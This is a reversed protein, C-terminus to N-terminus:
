LSTNTKSLLKPNFHYNLNVGFGFASGERYEKYNPATSPAWNDKVTVKSWIMPTSISLSNQGFSILPIFAMGVFCGTVIIKKM